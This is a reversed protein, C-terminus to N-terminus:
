ERWHKTWASFSEQGKLIDTLDVLVVLQVKCKGENGDKRLKKAVVQIHSSLNKREYRTPSNHQHLLHSLLKNRGMKPETGDM